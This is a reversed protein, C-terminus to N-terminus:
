DGVGFYDKLFQCLLGLESSSFAVTCHSYRCITSVATERQFNGAGDVVYCVRYDKRGLKEYRSKAQGAKREITSNTTVQFSVEIAAYKSNCQLAMDFSMDRGRTHSIGPIRGGPLFSVGLGSLSDQIFSKVYDQAINGLNNAKAGGTIRSVWIYRQKVFADLESPSGLYTGIQCNALVNATDPDSSCSGILLVMAVDRTLASLEEGHGLRKASMGLKDNNLAGKVPLAKFKYTRVKGKWLYEIVRKPFFTNFQSNVRQLMEGGFDALVVLHKLFLNGALSASSVVDFVKTPCDVDVKLVALFQEQTELLRPIVSIESERKSFEEPWFFTARKKLEAFSRAYNASNM